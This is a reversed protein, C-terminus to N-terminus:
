RKEGLVFRARERSLMQFPTRYQVNLGACVDPLKIRRKM